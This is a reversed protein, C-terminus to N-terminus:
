TPYVEIILPHFSTLSSLFLEIWMVLFHGLGSDALNMIRLKVYM